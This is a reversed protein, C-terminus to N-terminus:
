PPSAGSEVLQGLVLVAYFYFRWHSPEVEPHVTVLGEALRRPAHRACPTAHATVLGLALRRPTHAPRGHHAARPRGARNWREVGESWVRAGCGREM